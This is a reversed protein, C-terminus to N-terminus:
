DNGFRVFINKGSGLGNSVREAAQEDAYAQKYKDRWMLLKDISMLNIAQGSVMMQAQDNSARKLLMAEIADLTAKVHSRSDLGSTAAAFNAIIELLGSDILYRETSKTVYAQWSYVGAAYAASTAAPISVLHDDGSASASIAIRIGSKVLSYTLAWGASAKPVEGTPISIGSAARKWQVLDGAVIKEPETSAYETM